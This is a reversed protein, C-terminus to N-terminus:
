SSSNRLIISPHRLNWFMEPTKHHLQIKPEYRPPIFSQFTSSHSESFSTEFCLCALHVHKRKLKSLFRNLCIRKNFCDFPVYCHMIWSFIFHNILKYIWHSIKSNRFFSKIGYKDLKHLFHVSSSSSKPIVFRNLGILSSHFKRM